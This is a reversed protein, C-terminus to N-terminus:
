KSDPNECTSVNVGNIPGQTSKKPNSPQERQMKDLNTTLSHKPDLGQTGINVSSIPHSSGTVLNRPFWLLPPAFANMFIRPKVSTQTSEPLVSSPALSAQSSVKSELNLDSWSNASELPQSSESSDSIEYKAMTQCGDDEKMEYNETTQCGYDEKMEHISRERRSIDDLMEFIM